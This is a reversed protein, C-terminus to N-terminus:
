CSSVFVLFNTQRSRRTALVGPAADLELRPFLGRSSFYFFDSARRAPVCHRIKSTALDATLIAGAFGARAYEHWTGRFPKSADLTYYHTAWYLTM